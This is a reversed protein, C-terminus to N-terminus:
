RHRRPRSAGLVMIAVGVVLVVLVGGLLMSDDVGLTTHRAAAGTPRVGRAGAPAMVAVLGAITGVLGALVALAARVTRVARNRCM